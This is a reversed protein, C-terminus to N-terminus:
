ISRHFRMAKDTNQNCEINMGENSLIEELFTDVDRIPENSHLIPNLFDLFAKATTPLHYDSLHVVYITMLLGLDEIPVTVLTGEALERKIASRVLFSIGTGHRVLEKILEVNNTEAIINLKENGDRFSEGVKKRTVSGIEKMVIPEGVLDAVFVQERRTLHHDPAVILVIEERVLPICNLDPNDKMKPIIALSNRFESLSESIEESSGENLEVRIGPFSRLFPVLLTPMWHRAYTKTTGIRLSGQRLKQLDYICKELNEELEFIKSTYKFITKGEDTLYINRGRKKFLKLECCEELVKIQATVAPQTVFLHKSAVTYNLWKAAQHFTRLQNFNLVKKGGQRQQTFCNLAPM